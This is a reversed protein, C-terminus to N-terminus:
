QIGTPKAPIKILACSDEQPNIIPGTVSGIVIFIMIRKVMDNKM